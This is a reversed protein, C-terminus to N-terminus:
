RPPIIIAEFSYTAEYWEFKAHPYFRRIAEYWWNHPQVILHANRGDPLVENASRCCVQLFTARRSHAAIWALTSDLQEPEVHELVDTCAVIDFVEAPLSNKGAIGPDYEAIRIKPGTFNRKLTGKGCGFDLLSKAEVRKALAGIKKVHRIGDSGWAPNAAHAKSILDRYGESIM